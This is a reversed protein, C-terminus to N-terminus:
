LACDAPRQIRRDFLVPYGDPDAVFAEIRWGEDKPERLWPVSATGVASRQMAGESVARGYLLRAVLVWVGM